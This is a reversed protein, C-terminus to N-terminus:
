TNYSLLSCSCGKQLTRLPSVRRTHMTCLMACWHPGACVNAVISALLRAAAVVGSRLSPGPFRGRGLALLSAFPGNPAPADARPGPRLRSRLAADPGVALEFLHSRGARLLGV